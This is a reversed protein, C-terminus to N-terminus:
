TPEDLVPEPANTRDPPPTAGGAQIGGLSHTTMLVELVEVSSGPEVKVPSHVSGDGLIVTRVVSDGQDGMPLGTALADRLMRVQDATLTLRELTEGFSRMGYGDNDPGILRFLKLACAFLGVGPSGAVRFLERFGMKCANTKFAIPKTASKM